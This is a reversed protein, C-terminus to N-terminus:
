MCAAYGGMEDKKIQVYDLIKINSSTHLNHLEENQLERQV